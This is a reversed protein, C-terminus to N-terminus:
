IYMCIYIYTMHIYIYIYICMDLYTYQTYIYVYSKTTNIHIYIYVYIYINLYIYMYLDFLWPKHILSPHRAWGQEWSNSPNSAWPTDCSGEGPCKRKGREEHQVCHWQLHGSLVSVVPEYEEVLHTAFSILRSLRM